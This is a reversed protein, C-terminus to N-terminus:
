ELGATKIFYLPCSSWRLVIELYCAPDGHLGQILCLFEYTNLTLTCSQGPSMQWHKSINQKYCSHSRGADAPLPWLHQKVNQPVRSVAM